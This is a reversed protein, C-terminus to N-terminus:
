PWPEPCPPPLRLYYHLTDASELRILLPREAGDPLPHPWGNSWTALDLGNPSLDGLVSTDQDAAPPGLRSVAVTPYTAAATQWAQLAADVPVEALRGALPDALPGLRCVTEESFAYRRVPWELRYHSPPRGFVAIRSSPHYTGYHKKQEHICGLLADRVEIQHPRSRSSFRGTRQDQRLVRGQHDLVTWTISRVEDGGGLHHEALAILGATFALSTLPFILWTWRRWGLWGLLWWEVPGILVAFGLLLLLLQTVPLIRAKVPVTFSTDSSQPHIGSYNSHPEWGTGALVTAAQTPSLRWFRCWAQRWAPQLWVAADNPVPPAFVVVGLGCAVPCPSPPPNQLHGTASIAWAKATPGGLTRLTAWTAADAEAPLLCWLAGGGRVWDVLATQQSPRLLAWSEGLVAVGEVGCWELAQTPAYEPPVGLVGTSTSAMYRDSDKRHRELALERGLGGSARGIPQVIALVIGIDYFGDPMVLPLPGGAHNRGDQDTFGVWVGRIPQRMPPITLRLTTNGPALAVEPRHLVSLWHDAPPIQNWLWDNGLTVVTLTGTTLGQGHWTLTLPFSLPGQFRVPLPGLPSSITLLTEPDAAGAPLWCVLVLLLGYLHRIM